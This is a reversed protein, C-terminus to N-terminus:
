RSPSGTMGGYGQLLVVGVLALVPLAFPLMALLIVIKIISSTKM